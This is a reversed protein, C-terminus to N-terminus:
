DHLCDFFAILDFPGPLPAKADAVTFTARDALGADRAHAQAADISGKHTDFGFFSSNPFAEAMLLTSHGHGCGVDAVRAGRELKEVVGDLAPLWASVLNARYPARFFAANGCSLSRHRDNWAVGDGTRFAHLMRDEDFWVSAPVDWAPPIFVPSDEDALVMAQEPPLEYTDRAADYVVYGGAAQSNLWERVYREACA